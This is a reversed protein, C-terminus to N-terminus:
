DVPPKATGDFLTRLDSGQTDDNEEKLCGDVQSDTMKAHDLRAASRALERIIQEFDSYITKEGLMNAGM